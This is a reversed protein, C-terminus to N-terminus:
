QKDDLWSAKLENLTKSLAANLIPDEDRGPFETLYDDKDETWCEGCWHLDDNSVRRVVFLPRITAEQRLDMSVREYRHAIKIHRSEEVAVWVTPDIFDEM